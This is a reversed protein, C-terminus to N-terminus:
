KRFRQPQILGNAQERAPGEIDTSASFGGGRLATQDIHMM